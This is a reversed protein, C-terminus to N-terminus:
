LYKAKLSTSCSPWNRFILQACLSEELSCLLSPFSFLAVKCHLSTVFVVELWIILARLNDSVAGEFPCYLKRSSVEGMGQKLGRDESVQLTDLM